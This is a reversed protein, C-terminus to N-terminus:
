LLHSLTIRNYNYQLLIQINKKKLEAILFDFTELHENELLNGDLDTIECEWIHVRYADLGLRAFHYVDKKICEKHDIGLQKMRRFSHAFSPAYNVGFAAIEKNSTSYRWVGNGDVFTSQALVPKVISLFSLGVLFFVHIKM